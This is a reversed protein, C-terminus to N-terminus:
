SLIDEKMIHQRITSKLLMSASPRKHKKIKHKSKGIRRNESTIKEEYNEDVIENHHRRKM